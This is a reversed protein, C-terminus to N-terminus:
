GGSRARRWSRSGSRRDRALPPGFAHVDGLSRDLPRPEPEPRDDHGRECENEANGREDGGGSRAGRRAYRDPDCDEVAHDGRGAEDDHENGREIDHHLAELLPPRAAPRLSLRHRGAAPRRGEERVPGSASFSDAIRSLRGSSTMSSQRCRGEFHDVSQRSDTFEVIIRSASSRSQSKRMLNVRLKKYVAECTGSPAMRRLEKNGAPTTQRVSKTYTPSPCCTSGPDRASGVLFDNNEAAVFTVSRVVCIPVSISPRCSLSKVSLCFSSSPRKIASRLTTDEPFLIDRRLLLLLQPLPIALNLMWTLRRRGGDIRRDGM